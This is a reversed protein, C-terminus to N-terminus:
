HITVKLGIYFTNRTWQQYQLPGNTSCSVTQRPNEKAYLLDLVRSVSVGELSCYARLGWELRIMLDEGVTNMTMPDDESPGEM